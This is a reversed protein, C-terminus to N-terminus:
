VEMGEEKTNDKSGVVKRVGLLGAGITTFLIIINMYELTNPFKLFYGVGAAIFSLVGTVIILGGALGSMSNKGNNNTILENLSFKDKDFKM